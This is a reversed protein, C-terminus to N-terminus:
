PTAAEPWRPDFGTALVIEEVNLRQLEALMVALEDPGVPDGELHQEVASLTDSEIAPKGSALEASSAGCSDM